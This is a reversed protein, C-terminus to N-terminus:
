RIAANTGMLMGEVEEKVKKRAALAQEELRVAEARAQVLAQVLARQEKVPPIPMRLALLATKTINQMTPSSGTIAAEIQQRLPATKMVEALYAGDLPGNPKFVVRFIKDCLLLKPRTSLVQACSGVYRPVNARSILVDGPKIEYAPIPKLATPLAKNEGEDYTGFSVAGLKLVGWEDPKAPRNHCQPSWGNELDAVVDALQQVPYRSRALANGQVAQKIFGISWRELQDNPLAFAKPVTLSAGAAIGLAEVFDRQAAVVKAQAQAELEAARAMGAQWHAVIARQTELPPLPINLQLFESEKFRNRSVAATGVSSKSVRALTNPHLMFRVLYNVDLRDANLSFQPFENSCWLGAHSEDVAAFAGRWAFLRGYIFAGPLLKSLHTASTAEGEISERHYVGGGALRVGALDYKNSPEVSIRQHVQKVLEHLPVTHWGNQKTHPVDDSELAVWKELSAWMVVQARGLKVSDTATASM